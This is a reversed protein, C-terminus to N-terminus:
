PACEVDEGFATSSIQQIAHGRCVAFYHSTEPSGDRVVGGDTLVNCQCTIKGITRAVRSPINPSCVNECTARDDKGQDDFASCSACLFLLTIIYKM